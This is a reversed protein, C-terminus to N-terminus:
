DGRASIVQDVRLLSCASECAASIAHVLTFSPLWVGEINAPAGSHDIGANLKGKRHLSRLELLTDIKDAGTNAALSVPISELARSFAEM